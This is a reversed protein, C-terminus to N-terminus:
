QRCDIGADGWKQHSTPNFNKTKSGSSRTDKVSLDTNKITGGDAPWVKKKKEKTKKVKKERTKPVGRLWSVREHIIGAAVGLTCAMPAKKGV